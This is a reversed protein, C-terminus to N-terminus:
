FTFINCFRKEQDQRLKAYILPNRTALIQLAALVANKPDLITVVPVGSPTRLSSWVDEPLKEWGAPVTIVPVTCHASLIPGAGNSRGCYVIVVSDPVEQLLKTLKQIAQTPQKHLSYVEEKRLYLLDGMAGDFSSLDDKESAKWLIIQQQPLVFNDTLKAVLQYKEMVVALSTGDRYLQKDFYNGNDIIRWSDSDIVDALVLKGEPDIGFELKFDVLRKGALQWFKELILFVKRAIEAIQKIIEPSGKLPFDEIILFPEQQRIPKSPIYLSAHEFSEDFIMLPDDEPIDGGNWRKESTKLFYEVVLQSFVHGKSFEPHRKLYSGHAERRVVIESLIMECKKALFRIEDIEKLFATRVGCAELAKFVNSTTRNSSAAKGIAIDHKSGNGATIDDKSEIIVQSPDETSWIIKTKGEALLVSEMKEEM